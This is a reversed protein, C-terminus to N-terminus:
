CEWGQCGDEDLWLLKCGERGIPGRLCLVREREGGREVDRKWCYKKEGIM